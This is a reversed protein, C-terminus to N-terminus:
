EDSPPTIKALEEALMNALREAMAKAVERPVEPSLRFSTTNDKFSVSLVRRSQRWLQYGKANQSSLPSEQDEGDESAKQRAIGLAFNVDDEPRGATPRQGNRSNRRDDLAKMVRQLTTPDREMEQLMRRGHSATLKRPDALRNLLEDPLRTAVRLLHSATTRDMGLSSALSSISLDKRTALVSALWKGREIDSIGKRKENEHFTIAVMQDDTLEKVQALVPINLALCAAIRRRGAAVEYMKGDATGQGEAIPRVTVAQLQGRERINLMLERQSEDRFSIDLRDRPACAAERITDPAVLVFTFGTASASAESQLRRLEAQARALSGEMDGYADLQAQLEKNQALLTVGRQKYISNPGFQPDPTPTGEGAEDADAEPKSVTPRAARAPPRMATKTPTADAEQAVLDALLNVARKKNPTASM